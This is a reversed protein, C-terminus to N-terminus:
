QPVRGRRGCAQATNWWKSCCPYTGYKPWMSTRNTWLFARWSSKPTPCRRGNTGGAVELQNQVAQAQAIIIYVLPHMREAIIIDVLFAWGKPGGGWKAANTGPTLKMWHHPTTLGLIDQLLGVVPHAEPVRAALHRVRTVMVDAVMLCMGRCWSAHPCHGRPAGTSRYTASWDSGQTSM